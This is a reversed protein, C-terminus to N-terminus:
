FLGFYDKRIKVRVRLIGVRWFDAFYENEVLFSMNYPHNKHVTHFLASKKMLFFIKKTRCFIIIKKIVRDYQDM